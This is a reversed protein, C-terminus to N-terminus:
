RAARRSSLSPLFLGVPLPRRNLGTSGFKIRYQCSTRM